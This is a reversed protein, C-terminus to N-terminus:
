REEDSDAPQDRQDLDIRNRIVRRQIRPIDILILTLTERPLSPHSLSLSRHDPPNRM